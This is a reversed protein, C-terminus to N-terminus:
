ATREEEGKRRADLKEQVKKREETWKNPYASIRELLKLERINEELQRIFFQERTLGKPCLRVLIAQNETGIRKAERQRKRLMAKENQAALQRQVSSHLNSIGGGQRNIEQMKHMLNANQEAIERKREMELQLKRTGSREHFAMPLLRDPIHTDIHSVGESISIIRALHRQRDRGTWKHALLKNAVPKVDRFSKYGNDASTGGKSVGTITETRDPTAAVVSAQQQLPPLTEVTAM